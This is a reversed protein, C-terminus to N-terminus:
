SWSSCLPWCCSPWCAAGAVAFLIIRNPTKARPRPTAPTPVSLDEFPAAPMQPAPIILVSGCGPCKVKRGAANDPAKLAKRCSPCAVTIPM